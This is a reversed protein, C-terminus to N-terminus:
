RWSADYMYFSLYMYMCTYIYIYIYVYVHIMYICICIYRHMYIYVAIVTPLSKALSLISVGDVGPTDQIIRDPFSLGFRAGGILISIVSYMPASEIGSM